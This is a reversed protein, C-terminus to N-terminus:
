VRSKVRRERVTSVLTETTDEESRVAGRSKQCSLMGATEPAKTAASAARSTHGERQTVHILLLNHKTKTSPCPCESGMREASVGGGDIVTRGLTGGASSM